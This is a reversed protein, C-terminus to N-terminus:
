KIRERFYFLGKPTFNTIENSILDLAMQEAAQRYARLQRYDESAPHMVRISLITLLDYHVADRIKIQSNFQFKPMRYARESLQNYSAIALHMNCVDPSKIPDYDGSYRFFPSNITPYFLSVGTSWFSCPGSEPMLPKLGEAMIRGINRSSKIGHYLIKNKNSNDVIEKISEPRVNSITEAIYDNM